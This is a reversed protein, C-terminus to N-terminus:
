DGKKNKSLRSQEKASIRILEVLINNFTKKRQELDTPPEIWIEELVPAPLRSMNDSRIGM